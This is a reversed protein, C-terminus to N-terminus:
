QNNVTRSKAQTTLIQVLNKFIPNSRIPKQVPLIRKGLVGCESISEFSGILFSQLIQDKFATKLCLFVMLIERTDGRLAQVQSMRASWIVALNVAGAEDCCQVLRIWYM